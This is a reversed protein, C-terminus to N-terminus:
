IMLLVFGLVVGVALSCIHAKSDIGPMFSLIIMTVISPMIASIGAFGFVRIITMFYVGFLGFIAGSAGVSMTYDDQNSHRIYLAFIQGLIITTFFILLFHVPGFLRIILTGINYLSYMNFILHLPTMHAFASTILRKYDKRVIVYLYSAGLDDLDLKGTYINYYVYCNIGILLLIILNM